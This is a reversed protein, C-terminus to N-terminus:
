WHGDGLVVHLIYDYFSFRTMASACSFEVYRKFGLLWDQWQVRLSVFETWIVVVLRCILIIWFNMFNLLILLKLFTFTVSEELLDFM